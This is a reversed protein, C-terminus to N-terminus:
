VQEFEITKDKLFATLYYRILEAESKGLPMVIIKYLREGELDKQIM